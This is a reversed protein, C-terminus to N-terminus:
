RTRNARARRADMPQIVLPRLLELRDGDQLEYDGSVEEGWVAYAVVEFNEIWCM